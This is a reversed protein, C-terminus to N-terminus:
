FNIFATGRFKEYHDTKGTGNQNRNAAESDVSSYRTSGLQYSKVGPPNKVAYM